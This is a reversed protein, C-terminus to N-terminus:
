LKVRACNAAHKDFVRAVAVESTEAKQRDVTAMEAYIIRKNNCDM